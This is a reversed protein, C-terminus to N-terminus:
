WGQATLERVRSITAKFGKKFRMQWRESKLRKRKKGPREHFRQQYFERRVRNQGVQQALLKFSRAVDVNAGVHVTRGTRPVLRMHARPPPPAGFNPQRNPRIDGLDLDSAFDAPEPDNGADDGKPAGFAFDYSSSKPKLIDIDAISEMSKRTTHSPKAWDFSAYSRQQSQTTSTTSITAPRTLENPSRLSSTTSMHHRHCLSSASTLNRCQQSRMQTTRLLSTTATSRMAAQAARGLEAM